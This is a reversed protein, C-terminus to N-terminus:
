ITSFVYVDAREAQLSQLGLTHLGTGLHYQYPADSLPRFLSDLKM